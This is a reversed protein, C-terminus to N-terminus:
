NVPANVVCPSEGKGNRATIGLTWGDPLAIAVDFGYDKGGRPNSTLHSNTVRVPWRPWDDDRCRRAAPFGDDGSEYVVDSVNYRTIPWGGHDSADWSINWRNQGIDRVEVNQPAGAVSGHNSLGRRGARDQLPAGPEM